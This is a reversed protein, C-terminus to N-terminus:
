NNEGLYDAIEGITIDRFRRGSKKSLAVSMHTIDLNRNVIKELEFVFDVFDISELGLDEMIRTNEDMIVPNNTMKKLAKIISEIHTQKM